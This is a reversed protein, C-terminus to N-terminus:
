ETRPRLFLTFTFTRNGETTATLTRSIVSTILSNGEGDVPNAGTVEISGIIGTNENKTFYDDKNFTWTIATNTADEPLYKVGITVTEAPYIDIRVEGNASELSSIPIRNKEEVVHDNDGLDDWKNRYYIAKEETDHGEDDKVYETAFTIDRIEEYGGYFKKEFYKTKGSLDLDKYEVPVYKSGTPVYLITQSPFTCFVSPVDTGEFKIEELSTCGDFANKGIYNINKGIPVKKLATCDKFASRKIKTVVEPFEIYTLNKCGEFAYACVEDDGDLGYRVIHKQAQAFTYSYPMETKESLEVNYDDIILKNIM